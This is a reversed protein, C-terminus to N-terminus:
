EKNIKSLILDIKNGLGQLEFVVKNLESQVEHIKKNVKALGERFETSPEDSKDVLTPRGGRSESVKKLVISRNNFIDRMQEFIRVQSEGPKTKLAIQCARRGTEM